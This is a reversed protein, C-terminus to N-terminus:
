GELQGNIKRFIGDKILAVNFNVLFALKIGSLRAYTLVIKHHVRELREISKIEVILKNAVLIDIRYGLGLDHGKYIVPVSVQRQYPIGAQDLEFALAAEYVSELLGPGLEVHVRYCLDVVITALENETM